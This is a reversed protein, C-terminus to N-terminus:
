HDRYCAAFFFRVSRQYLLPRARYKEVVENLTYSIKDAREFGLMVEIASDVLSRRIAPLPNPVFDVGGDSSVVVILCPSEVSEFYRIASNYRAGRSPNGNETAKGDLITGIAHCVGTQDLIIAGDIPTLNKLVKADLQFPTVRTGQPALRAAEIAAAETIVLMTGHIEKEAARVLGVLREVDTASISRFIRPLDVRFKDEDFSLKPLSPLGYQVRM